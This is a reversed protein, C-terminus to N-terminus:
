FPQTKYLFSLVKPSTNSAIQAPTEGTFRKLHKSLHAQDYYGAMEITDLISYGGKLLNLAHRARKIQYIMTLNLGTAQLFRRQVSRLSMGVQQGDLVFDVLPDYLLLGERVLKKVFDEANEFDPIEWSAGELWFSRSHTELNIDQRDMMQKAPFNPMFAGPKFQIGVYETEAVAIATSSKTEPGRITILNKGKSRTLVIGWHWEAMSTFATSSENYSHWVREILPSDAVREYFNLDM